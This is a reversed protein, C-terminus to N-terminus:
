LEAPTIVLGTRDAGRRLRADTTLVTARELHALAVFEADYTKAWGLRAAVRCAEDYLNRPTRRSIPLQAFERLARKLAADDLEGRWRAERLGSHVESWMLPPSILTHPSLEAAAAPSVSAAIAASSDVVLRVTLAVPALRARDSELGAHASRGVDPDM